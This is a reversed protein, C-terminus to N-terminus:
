MGKDTSNTSNIELTKTMKDFEEVFVQLQQGWNLLFDRTKNLDIHIREENIDVGAEKNQIVGKEMDETMKKMKMDIQKGFNHFFDKTKNTDITITGQDVNFGM